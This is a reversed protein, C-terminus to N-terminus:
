SCQRSYKAHLQGWPICCKQKYVAHFLLKPIIAHCYKGSKESWKEAHHSWWISVNEVNSAKQPPIEGTMPSNGVCLGIAHLKSTKKSRHRFLHNLLCDLGRLNCIGDRENHRWQLSYYEKQSDTVLWWQCGMESGADSFPKVWRGRSLIAGM